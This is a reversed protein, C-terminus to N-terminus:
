KMVIPPADAARVPKTNTAIDSFGLTIAWSRVCRWRATPVIAPKVAM